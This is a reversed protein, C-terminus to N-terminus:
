YPRRVDGANVKGRLWADMNLSDQAEGVCMGAFHQMAFSLNRCRLMKIAMNQNHPKDARWNFGAPVLSLTCEPDDVIRRLHGSESIIPQLAASNRMRHRSMADLSKDM